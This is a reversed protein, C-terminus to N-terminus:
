DRSRRRRAPLDGALAIWVGDAVGVAVGPVASAEDADGALAVWFGDFCFNFAVLIVLKLFLAFFYWCM